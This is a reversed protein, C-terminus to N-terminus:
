AGDVRGCQSSYDGNRLDAPKVVSVFPAGCLLATWLPTTECSFQCNIGKTKFNIGPEAVLAAEGSGKNQIRLTITGASGCGRESPM